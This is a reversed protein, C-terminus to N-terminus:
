VKTYEHGSIAYNVPPSHGEVLKAYVNSCQMNIDDESGAMEFFALWIWMDQDVVVELVMTCAGKHGKYMGQWAFPYNKWAWYM